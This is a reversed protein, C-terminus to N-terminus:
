KKRTAKKTAGAGQSGTELRALQVPEGTVGAFIAEAQGCVLVSVLAALVPIKSNM